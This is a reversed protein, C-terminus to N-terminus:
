CRASRDPPWSTTTSTPSSRHHPGRTTPCRHPQVEAWRAVACGGRGVHLSTAWSSAIGPRRQQRGRRRAEDDTSRRVHLRAPSQYHHRIHARPRRNFTLWVFGPWRGLEHSVQAFSMVTPLDSPGFISIEGTLAPAAGCDAPACQRRTTSRCSSRARGGRTLRPLHPSANRRAASIVEADLRQTDYPCLM